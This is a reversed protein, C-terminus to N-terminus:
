FNPFELLSASFYYFFSGLCGCICSIKNTKLQEGILVTYKNFQFVNVSSLCFWYVGYANISYFYSSMSKVVFMCISLFKEKRWIESSTEQEFKNQFLLSCATNYDPPPTSQPLSSPCSIPTPITDSFEMLSSDMPATPILPLLLPPTTCQLVDPKFVRKKIRFDVM